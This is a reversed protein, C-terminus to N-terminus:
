LSQRLESTDKSTGLSQLNKELTVVSFLFFFILFILIIVNFSNEGMLLFTEKSEFMHKFKFNVEM